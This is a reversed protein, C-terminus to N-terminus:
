QLLLPSQPPPLQLLARYNADTVVSSFGGPTDSFDERIPYAKDAKFAEVKRRALETLLLRANLDWETPFIVNGHYDVTLVFFKMTLTPWTRWNRPVRYKIIMNGGIMSFVSAKSGERASDSLKLAACGHGRKWAGKGEKAHVGRRDATELSVFRDTAMPKRFDYSYTLCSSTKKTPKLKGEEDWELGEADSERLRNTMEEFVERPLRAKITCQRRRLKSLPGRVRARITKFFELAFWNKPLSLM